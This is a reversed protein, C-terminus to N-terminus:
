ALGLVAHVAYEIQHLTETSVRGLRHSLRTLSLARIQECQVSSARELGGEPPDLRVHSRVARLRTTVPLVIVMEAASENVFDASIILAPRLKAQEHEAATESRGFNVQWIEGRRPRAAM